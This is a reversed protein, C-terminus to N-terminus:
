YLSIQKVTVNVASSSTSGIIVNVLNLDFYNETSTAVEEDGVYVTLKKGSINIKVTKDSISTFGSLSDIDLWTTGFYMGWKGSSNHYILFGHETDSMLLRENGTPAVDNVAGVQIELTNGNGLLGQQLTAYGSGGTISLGAESQSIEGSLNANNGSIVDAIGTTFDYEFKKKSTGGQELKTVRADLSVYDTDLHEIDGQATVMETQLQEVDEVLGAVTSPDIGAMARKMEEVTQHGTGTILNLGAMKDGGKM